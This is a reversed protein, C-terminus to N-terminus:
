FVVRHKEGKEKPVNQPPHLCFFLLGFFGCWKKPGGRGGMETNPNQPTKPPQPPPKKPSGERVPEIARLNGGELTFGGKKETEFPCFEPEQKPKVGL